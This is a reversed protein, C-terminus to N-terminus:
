RCKAAKKGISSLNKIDLYLFPYTSNDTEFQPNYLWGVIETSSQLGLDFPESLWGNPNFHAYFPQSINHWEWTALAHGEVLTANTIYNYGYLFTVNNSPSSYVLIWEEWIQTQNHDGLQDPANEYWNKRMVTLSRSKPSVAFSENLLISPSVASRATVLYEFAALNNNTDVYFINALPDPPYGATWECALPTHLRPQRETPIFIIADSWDNLTESFVTHRITGNIDQFFLHRDGNDALLAAVSTDNLAGHTAPPQVSSSNSSSQSASRHAPLGVGLGVGLSILVIAM